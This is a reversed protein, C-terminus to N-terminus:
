VAGATSVLFRCAAQVFFIAAIDRVYFPSRDSGNPPIMTELLAGKLNPDQVERFQMTLCYRLARRAAARWREDKTEQYLDLWLIAACAMGSTDVTQSPRLSAHFPDTEDRTLHLYWDGVRRAGELYRRDGSDQFAAILPYGWRFSQRSYPFGSRANLPYANWNGPPDEDKLLREAAAYFLKKCIANRTQKYAKLFAAEDVLPRGPKDSPWPPAVFQATKVDFADRFLGDSLYANRAVWFIGDLGWEAYKRDGTADSLAFLGEATELIAATNVEDSKFEYAYLLGYNKSRKDSIREAGIFEAGLRAGALPQDDELVRSAMVLAKIAQSTHAMPSTFDWKRDAARYEGRVAGKWHKYALQRSNTDSGNLHDAKVQAIDTIWACALRIATRLWTANLDGDASANTDAARLRLLPVASAGACLFSRRCLRPNSGKGTLV